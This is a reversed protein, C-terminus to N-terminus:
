NLTYARCPRPSMPHFDGAPPGGDVM